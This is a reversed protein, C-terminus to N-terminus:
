EPNPEKLLGQYQAKLYDPAAFHWQMQAYTDWWGHAHERVEAEKGQGNPSTDVIREYSGIVNERQLDAIARELSDRFKGVERPPTIGAGKLLADMSCTFSCGNRANVRFMLTLYLGIRKQYRENKASYALVQRLMTATTQNLEPVMTIWEGLAVSRKEWLAEGTITSYEGIKGSLLDIIAGEAKLMTTSKGRKVPMTAIIHSQSLTKLHATVDARQHPTYSGNTKKKGCVSLIDDPSIFFSQRLNQTGNRDLAIAMLALYTDVCGDGLTNLAALVTDLGENELPRITIILRGDQRRGMSHSYEAVSQDPYQKYMDGRRLATILSQNVIDSRIGITEQGRAVIPTAPHRPGRARKPPPQEIRSNLGPADVIIWREGNWEIGRGEKALSDLLGQIRTLNHQLDREIRALDEASMNEYFANIQSVTVPM